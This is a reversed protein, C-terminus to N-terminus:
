PELLTLEPRFSGVVASLHEDVKYTIKGMKSRSEPSIVKYMAEELDGLSLAVAPLFITRDFGLVEQIKRYPVDHLRIMASIAARKGTVAHPVNRAIPLEVDVGSLPERVVGSFCGTTAANPAGARVVITPLRIGRADV